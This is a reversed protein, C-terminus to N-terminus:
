FSTLTEDSNPWIGPNPAGVIYTTSATSGAASSVRVTIISGPDYDPVITATTVYTGNSAAVTDSSGLFITPVDQSVQAYLSVQVPSNAPANGSVVLAQAGPKQVASVTIPGRGWQAANPSAIAAASSLALSAILFTQTVRRFYV